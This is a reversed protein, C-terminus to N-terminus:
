LDGQFVSTKRARAERMLEFFREITICELHGSAQVICAHASGRPQEVSDLFTAKRASTCSLLLLAALVRTM